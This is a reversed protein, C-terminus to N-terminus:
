CALFSPYPSNSGNRNFWRVKEVHVPASHRWEYKGATVNKNLSDFGAWLGAWLESHEIDRTLFFVGRSPDSPNEQFYSGSLMAPEIIQGRIQWARGGILDKTM